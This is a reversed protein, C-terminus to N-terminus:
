RTGGARFHSNAEAMTLNVMDRSRVLRGVERMIEEFAIIMAPATILNHPHFWMHVYGGTEVATRLMSKWRRITVDVPVLSRVGSPWNLFHGAPSVHWGAETMPKAGVRRDSLNWEHLLNTVREALTGSSGARYTEFGARRLPELHGVQNRPFVITRPTYGLEAFLTTALTLEREVAEASTCEHLPMHTAGHWGLEHGAARMADHYAHGSWGNRDGRSFASVVNSFWSPNLAAMAKLADLSGVAVEPRVAFMTVFAATARLGNRALADLIIRYAAALSADCIRGRNVVRPDDAM